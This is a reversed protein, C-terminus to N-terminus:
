AGHDLWAPAAPPYGRTCRATVARPHGGRRNRSRSYNRPSNFAWRKAARTMQGAEAVAVFYRLHRLDMHLVDPFRRILINARAAGTPLKRGSMLLCFGMFIRRREERRCRPRLTPACRRGLPQCTCTISTPAASFRHREKAALVRIRAARSSPPLRPATISAEQRFVM